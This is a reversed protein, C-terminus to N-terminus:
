ELSVVEACDSHIEFYLPHFQVAILNGEVDPIRCTLLTEAVDGLGEILSCVANYEGEGDGVGDTEVM